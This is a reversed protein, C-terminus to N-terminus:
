NTEDGGGGHATDLDGAGFEEVLHAGQVESEVVAGAACSRCEKAQHGVDLVDVDTKFVLEAVPSM